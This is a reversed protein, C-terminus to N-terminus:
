IGSASLTLTQNSTNHFGLVECVCGCEVVLGFIGELALCFHNKGEGSGQIIQRAARLWGRMQCLLSYHSQQLPAYPPASHAAAGAARFISLLVCFYGLCATPISGPLTGRLPSGPMTIVPPPSSHLPVPLEPQLLQTLFDHDFARPATPMRAWSFIPAPGVM